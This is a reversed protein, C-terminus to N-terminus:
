YKVSYLLKPETLRKVASLVYNGFNSKPKDFCESDVSSHLIM